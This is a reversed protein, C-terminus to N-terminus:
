RFQQTGQKRSRRKGSFHYWGPSPRRFLRYFRADLLGVSLLVSRRSFRNGTKEGTFPHDSEIINEVQCINRRTLQDSRRADVDSIILTDEIHM